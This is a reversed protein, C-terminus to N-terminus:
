IRDGREVINCEFDEYVCISKLIYQNMYRDIRSNVEMSVMKSVKNKIKM